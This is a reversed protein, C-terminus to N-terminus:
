LLDTDQLAAEAYIKHEEKSTNNNRDHFNLDHRNFVIFELQPKWGLNVQFGRM